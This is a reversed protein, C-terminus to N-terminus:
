DPSGPGHSHSPHGRAAAAPSPPRRTLRSSPYAGYDLHPLGHYRLYELSNKKKLAQQVISTAFASVPFRLYVIM